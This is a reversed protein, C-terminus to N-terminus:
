SRHIMGRGFVHCNPMGIERISYHQNLVCYVKFLQTLKTIDKKKIDPDRERDREGWGAREREREREKERKRERKIEM